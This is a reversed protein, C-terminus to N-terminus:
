SIRLQADVAMPQKPLRKPCSFHFCSNTKAKIMIAKPTGVKKSTQPKQKKKKIMRGKGLCLGGQKSQSIVLLNGCQWLLVSIYRLFM